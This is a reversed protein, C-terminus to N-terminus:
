SVAANSKFEVEMATDAGFPKDVPEGISAATFTRRWSKEVGNVTEIATAVIVNTNGRNHWDKTLAINDVGTTLSFKAMGFADTFDEAFDQGVAQGIVVARVNRTPEGEKYSFTNPLIPVTVNNVTIEPNSLAM